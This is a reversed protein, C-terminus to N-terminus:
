NCGGHSVIRILAIVLWIIWWYSGSGSSSSSSTGTRGNYVKDNSEITSRINDPLGHLQMLENSINQCDQINTKQVRVTLNILGVTLDEKADHFEEPLTNFFRHWGYRFWHLLKPRFTTYNDKNMNRFLRVNEDLFIRIAKFAEEKQAPLVFGEISLWDGLLFLNNDNILSRSTYNFPAAFYPSFFEDFEPDSQFDNLDHIVAAVNVTNDELVNLLPKKKWIRHHYVLRKEFDPRDTEEMVDNRNYTHGDIEIFGEKAMSFEASLHKKIRPINLEKSYDIGLHDFLRIPSIYQKEAL